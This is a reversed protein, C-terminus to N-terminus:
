RTRARREMVVTYGVVDSGMLVPELATKIGEKNFEEVWQDYQFGAFWCAASLAVIALAMLITVGLLFDIM